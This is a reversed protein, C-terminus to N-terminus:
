LKQVVVSCSQKAPKQKEWRERGNQFGKGERGVGWWLVLVKTCLGLVSVFVFLFLSSSNNNNDHIGKKEAEEEEEEEESSWSWSILKTHM